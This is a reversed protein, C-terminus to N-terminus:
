STPIGYVAYEHGLIGNANAGNGGANTTIRVGYDSGQTGTCAGAIHASAVGATRMNGHWHVNPMGNSTKRVNYDIEFHGRYTGTITAATKHASIPVYDLNDFESDNYTIEGNSEGHSFYGGYMGAVFSSSSAMPLLRLEYSDSIYMDTLLIKYHYYGATKWAGFALDIVNTDTESDGSALLVMANQKYGNTYLAM